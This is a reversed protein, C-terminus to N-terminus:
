RAPNERKVALYVKVIKLVGPALDDGTQLKRKKDEFKDDLQKAREELSQEAKELMDALAEDQPLIKFWQDASLSQLYEATLTDGKKLNPAANVVQGVLARHLREYTAGKVIRMEENLDKRVEDLQM